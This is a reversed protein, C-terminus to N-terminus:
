LMPASPVCIRSGQDIWDLEEADPEEATERDRGYAM